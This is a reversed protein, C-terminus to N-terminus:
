KKDASATAAHEIQGKIADICIESDSDVIIVPRIFAIPGKDKYEKAPLTFEFDKKEWDKNEVKISEPYVSDLWASKGNYMYAALKVSGKGKFYASMKVVDGSVAPILNGFLHFVQKAENKIMICKSGDQASESLVQITGLTNNQKFYENIIWGAPLNSSIEEFSNNNNIEKIEAFAQFGCIGIIGFLAIISKM